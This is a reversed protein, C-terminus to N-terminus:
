KAKKAKPVLFVNDPLEDGIGTNRRIIDSLRTRRITKLEDKNLTRKYWFRDGDRLAEFQLKLVTYVLEGVHAHRYPDEALGGVWADMDDVSDYAEALKAQLDPDSTVESFSQKRGLALKERLTNYDPLGHDRGRQINLSALDFGGAIPDGFLFNRVDDVIYPDVRQSTQHALGRLLPDIGGETTIRYPAFFANRLQLHGEPIPQGDADLRLLTPSLMSHGFRYAATAFINAISADVNASYGKYSKLSNKGLLAPIFENYTIVQMQAGVLQRAKQYIQEGDWDPHEAALEDALRNHERMFLTHMATLGVQENARVDGALFLTPDPGGANPLSDVNFPLLNGDSSRLKGTGDLTRLAQARVEDSGYVNSADIWATIENLQQRPSTTGTAPDYISRNFPTEIGPLFYQDDGPIVINAAEPPNTGDTLDLDHDLFQGWQWLYDSANEPNLISGPQAVVINSIERPGRRTSGAMGSAGDSYATQTWRQLQTGVAGMDPKDLNNGSGDISRFESNIDPPSKKKKQKASDRDHQIGHVPSVQNSGPGAQSQPSFTFNTVFVVVACVTSFSMSLKMHVGKDLKKKTKHAINENVFAAHQDKLLLIREKLITSYGRKNFLREIETFNSM